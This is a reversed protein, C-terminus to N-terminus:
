WIQFRLRRIQRIAVNLAFYFDKFKPGFIDSKRIIPTSNSFVITMNSIQMRSNTKNCRKTCFYFDKLKPSFIGSKPIKPSFNSFKKTMNSILTRSNTKNCLKTYFYFDKFTPGSIISKTNKPWFKLIINDYKFWCARIQRFTFNRPFVFIGLNPVM